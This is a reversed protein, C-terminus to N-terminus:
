QFIISEPNRIVKQRLVDQKSTVTTTFLRHSKIEDSAKYVIM